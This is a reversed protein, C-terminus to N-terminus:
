SIITSPPNEAKYNILYYIRSILIIISSGLASFACGYIGFKPILILNLIILLFFSLITSIIIKKDLLRVYLETFLWTNIVKIFAVIYLIWFISKYDNIIPRKTLYLVIELAPYAFLLGLFYLVVIIILYNNRIKKYSKFDSKMYAEIIMPGFITGIGASLFVFVAMALSYFYFYVGLVTITLFYAIFYRDIVEIMKDLFGNTFFLFNKKFNLIVWKLNKFRPLFFNKGLYLSIAYYSYVFCIINSMLWLNLLFYLSATKYILLYILLIFIWFSVRILNAFSATIPKKLNILIRNFETNYHEFIFLFGVIYLFPLNLIKYYILIVLGILSLFFTISTFYIQRGIINKKMEVKSKIFFRQYTTHYEFGWLFSFTVIVTIIYSYEGLITPGLYKGVFLVFVFRSILAIFVNIQVLFKNNDFNNSIFNNAFLSNKLFSFMQFYLSM